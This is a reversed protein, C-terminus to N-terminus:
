LVILVLVQGRLPILEQLVLLASLMELLLLLVELVLVVTPEQDPLREQPVIEVLRELALFNAQQVHPALDQQLQVTIKPARCAAM